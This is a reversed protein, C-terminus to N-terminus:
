LDNLKFVAKSIAGAKLRGIATEYEQINFIQIGMKDFNLYRDGMTAALRLAKLYTCPNVLCGIITLEKRFVEEPCLSVARGTPACGFIVVAAGRATLGVAKELAPPFGSCEVVVDFGNQEHDVGEEKAAMEDPSLVSFGTELNEVIDRRGQAPESVTVDRFGHHHFMCAWLNGVIGAGTILIRSDHQLSGTGMLRDWGHLICSLPECLAGTELSLGGPLVNVQDGPVLCYAAMGGDRFVGVANRTGGIQCHQVQGRKCFKCRTCPRNPDVGVWDGVNLYDVQTGVAEVVGSFEHSLTVFKDSCNKFECSLIHLDTGCLGAYAVKILVDDPAAVVPKELEILQLKGIKANCQLALM